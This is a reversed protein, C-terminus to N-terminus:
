LGAIHDGFVRKRLGPLAEQRLEELIESSVSHRQAIFVVFDGPGTQVTPFGVPTRIDVVPGTRLGLCSQLYQARSLDQLVSRLRRRKEGSGARSSRIDWYRAAALAVYGAMLHWLGSERGSFGPSIEACVDIAAGPQDNTLLAWALVLLSTRFAYDDGAVRALEQARIADRLRAKLAAVRRWYPADFAIERETTRRRTSFKARAECLASEAQAVRGFNTYAGGVFMTWRPDREVQGKLDPDRALQAVVIRVVEEGCQIGAAASVAYIAAGVREHELGSELVRLQAAASLNLWGASWMKRARGPLDAPSGRLVLEFARALADSDRQVEKRHCCDAHVPTWWVAKWAKALDSHVLSTAASGHPLM